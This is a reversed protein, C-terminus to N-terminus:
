TEAGRDAEVTSQLSGSCSTPLSLLPPPNRSETAGCAPRENARLLRPSRIHVGLRTRQRPASRGSCGLVDSREKLFGATQIINPVSVTVGYDGGTRVSTDLIVPNEHVFFGFRAPEGRAPELNFLPGIFTQLGVFRQESFVIRAVGLATQADCGNQGTGGNVKTEFDKITCQPFPTPNGILGPPLNFKLDKPLEAPM